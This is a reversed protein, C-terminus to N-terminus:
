KQEDSAGLKDLALNKAHRAKALIPDIELAKNFCTIAEEYKQLDHFCIGKNLWADANASNIKLSEGYCDRADEYNRLRLLSAGKLSWVLAEVHLRYDKNFDMNVSKEYRVIELAKDSCRIAEDNESLKYYCVSINNWVGAAVWPDIGIELAKHYFKIAERYNGLHDLADGRNMWVHARSPDIKLAEDFYEAAEDYRGLNHLALGKTDYATANLSNLRLAEDLKDIAEPYKKLKYYADAIHYTYLVSKKEDSLYTPIQSISQQFVSEVVNIPVFNQAAISYLMALASYTIEEEKMLYLAILSDRLDQKRKEALPRSNDNYLFYLLEVDWRPHKTRWLGDSNRRLISGDLHHAAELVGCKELIKDTIETNSIDLLSCILMAKMSLQSGLYRAWLEQVDRDLGQRFVSFKVMVPDGKTYDYIKETIKDTLKEDIIGSYRKIFEKIEEKTFYPLQYIFNPDANLKRISKRIEEEVKDLGNLLWDFEPKRATMIIKLKKTLQSNSVKDIFYFISYTKEKHANDIAVLIKKDNRLIDEIFNVLGDANRIDTVGYNYLVEYGADFYDCMLEMLTTSKSSGSAGIILLKGESDLKRKIHELINERRLERKMKISPLEFQFGEKWSDLDNGTSMHYQFYDHSLWNLGYRQYVRDLIM